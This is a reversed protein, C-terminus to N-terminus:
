SASRHTFPSDTNVVAQAVKAFAAELEAGLAADECTEALAQRMCAMWADRAPADIAFPQHVRRLRPAGRTPTYDRPGGLWESLYTVLVAKTPALDHEHMARIAQADVRTDMARYFAEVLQAVAAQGGLRQYHPNTSVAIAPAETM